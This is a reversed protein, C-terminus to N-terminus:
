NFRILSRIDKPGYKLPNYHIWIQKYLGGQDHWDSIYNFEEIKVDKSVAPNSITIKTDPSLRTLLICSSGIRIGITLEVLFNLKNYDIRENNRGAKEMLDTLSEEMREKIKLHIKHREDDMSRLNQEWKEPNHYKEVSNEYALLRRTTDIYPDINDELAGWLWLRQGLQDGIPQHRYEGLEIKDYIELLQETSVSSKEFKIDYANDIDKQQWREYETQANKERPRTPSTEEEQGTQSAEPTEPIYKENM